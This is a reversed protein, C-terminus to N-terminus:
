RSGMLFTQSFDVHKTAATVRGKTDVTIRADTGIDSVTGATVGTAALTLVGASSLTGDGSVAVIGWTSTGDWVFINGGAPAAASVTRGQIKGVVTATEAGTVDGSLPVDSVGAETIVLDNAGADTGGTGFQDTGSVILINRSCAADFSYPKGAFQTGGLTAQLVCRTAGIFQIFTGGNNVGQVRAVGTVGSGRVFMPGGLALMGLSNNAVFVDLEIPGTVDLGGMVNGSIKHAGNIRPAASVLVDAFNGSLNLYDMAATVKVSLNANYPPIGTGGNASFIGATVDVHVYMGQTSFSFTMPAAAQSGLGYGNSSMMCRHLMVGPSSFDITVGGGSYQFWCNSLIEFGGGSFTGGGWGITPSGSSGVQNFWFGSDTYWWSAGGSTLTDLFMCGDTFGTGSANLRGAQTVGSYTSFDIGCNTAVFNSIANLFVTTGAPKAVGSKFYVGEITLNTFTHQLGHVDWVAYNFRTMGSWRGPNGGVTSVLVTSPATTITQQDVAATTGRPIMGIRLISTHTPQEAVVADAVNTYVHLSAANSTQAPDVYCDYQTQAKPLGTNLYDELFRDRDVMQAELFDLLGALEPDNTLTRQHPGHELYDRVAAMLSIRDPHFQFTAM